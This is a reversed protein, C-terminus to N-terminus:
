QAFSNRAMFSLLSFQDVLRSRLIFISYLLQGCFEWVGRLMKVYSGSM